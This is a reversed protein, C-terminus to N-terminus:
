IGYLCLARLTQGTKTTVFWAADAAPTPHRYRLLDSRVVEPVLPIGSDTWYTSTGTLSRTWTQYTEGAQAASYYTGGFAGAAVYWNGTYMTTDSTVTRYFGGELYETYQYRTAKTAARVSPYGPFGSATPDPDMLVMLDYPIMGLGALTTQAQGNGDLGAILNSGLTVGAGPTYFNTPLTSATVVSQWGVTITGVSRALM